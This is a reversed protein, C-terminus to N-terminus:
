KGAIELRSLLHCSRHARREVRDMHKERSELLCVGRVGEPGARPGMVRPKGVRRGVGKCIM